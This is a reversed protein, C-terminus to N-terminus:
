RMSPDDEVVLGNQSATEHVARTAAALLEPTGFATLHFVTGRPYQTLKGQLSALDSPTFQGITAQLQGDFLFTLNMEVPSHWHWQAVNQREIGLALGELETVQENDLLWAQARGLSEVLGSQLSVADNADRPMGPSMALEADRDAWQRHFAQLRQWVAKQAKPGGYRALTEAADRVVYTDKDTLRAIVSPEVDPWRGAAVVAKLAETMCRGGKARVKEIGYDPDVRLFYRALADEIDCTWNGADKEYVAKVRPLIAATAYRGILPADVWITPRGAAELRTALTEDFEPLTEDPLLTLAKAVVSSGDMRPRRIEALIYPRGARPDLEFLRQMALGRVIDRGGTSPRELVAELPRVMAPTKLREWFTQLLDSQQTPTLAAFAAAIETDPVASLPKVDSSDRAPRLLLTRVTEARAAGRKSGTLGATEAYLDDQLKGFEKFRADRRASWAEQLQKDEEPYPPMPEHKHDLLFKTEGLASLFDATIAADPATLQAELEAVAEQRHRSGLIGAVFDWRSGDGPVGLQRVLERVSDPTDLFRLTRAAARKEEATSDANRLTAAAAGVTQARWGDSAEVIDFELANSRLTLNELKAGDRRSVRSSTAYLSYHGPKDLAVWENLDERVSEPDASLAKEGGLGGGIFGGYIGGEYHDHLPDRGPPSVHFEEINLRGSRDYNRNTMQYAGGGDASFLLEVPITEGTQFVSGASAFQIRLTAASDQQGRALAPGMLRILLVASLIKVRM